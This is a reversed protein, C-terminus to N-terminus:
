HVSSFTVFEVAAQESELAAEDAHSAHERQRVVPLSNMYSEM